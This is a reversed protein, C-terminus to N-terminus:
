CVDLDEGCGLLGVSPSVGIVLMLVRCRRRMTAARSLMANMAADHPSSSLAAGASVPALCRGAGGSRGGVGRCGVRGVSRCWVRGIGGAAFGDLDVPPVDLVVIRALGVPLGHGVGVRGLVRVHLDVDGHHLVFGELGGDLGVDLGAVDGVQELRPAATSQAILDRGAHHAVDGVLSRREDAIEALSGDLQILDIALLVADRVVGPMTPNQYLLSRKVWAPMVAGGAVHSSSSCSTWFSFSAPIVGIATPAPSLHGAWKQYEYRITRRPPASAIFWIAASLLKLTGLTISAPLFTASSTAREGNWSPNRPAPQSAGSPSDPM